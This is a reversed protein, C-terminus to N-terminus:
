EVLLPNQLDFSDEGLIDGSFFATSLHEVREIFDYLEDHEVGIIHFESSSEHEAFTIMILYMMRAVEASLRRSLFFDHKHEIAYLTLEAHLHWFENKDWFHEEVLKAMFSEKWRKDGSLNKKFYKLKSM